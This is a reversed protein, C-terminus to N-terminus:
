AYAPAGARAAAIRGILLYALPGASGLALTALVYPWAHRGHRQADGIMWSSILLCSVSLDCLIQLAGPNDVGARWIGLYGVELLAYGSVAAFPLGVLLLLWTSARM